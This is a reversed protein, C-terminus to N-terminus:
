LQEWESIPMDQGLKLAGIASAYVPDKVTTAKITGLGSLGKEIAPVLGRMKSGCGAILINSRLAEQFEPDFNIIFSNLTSIIDPMISGCAEMLENSIDCRTPKGDILMEVSIQENAEGIFAHQEKFQRAMIQTLQANSFKSNLMDFLMEDIYSGAKYTTKQDEDSPITGHMRCIDLTGAGVDVILAFGYVGLGYAVLFPQSVVLVSDVMDDVADIIAQKEQVTAEAPAGAVLFVKQDDRPEAMSIMHKIFETPAQAKREAEESKKDKGSIPIVGKEFPYYMDVSMRNRLCEDGFLVSKQHLKFSILDKPWGVVSASNVLLGSSTAIASQSTGLDLGIYLVDKKVVETAQETQVESNEEAM